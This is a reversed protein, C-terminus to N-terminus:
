GGSQRARAAEATRSRVGDVTWAVVEGDPRRLVSAKLVDLPGSLKALWEDLDEPAVCSNELAVILEREPAMAEVITRWVARREDCSFSLRRRLASAVQDVIVDSPCRRRVSELQRDLKAQVGSLFAQEIRRGLITRLGHGRFRDDRVIPSHAHHVIFSFPAGPALVRAAETASRVVSGYEFGFQSVVADFRHDEFPLEEMATGSKLRLRRDSSPAVRALDVGTVRLDNRAGLLVRGVVGAGCGIDLVRSSPGLSAAFRSWHGDLANRVDVHAGALCRSDASQEHWFATWAWAARKVPDSAPKQGFDEDTLGPSNVDIGQTGALPSCHTELAISRRDLGKM